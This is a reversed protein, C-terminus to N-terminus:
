ATMYLIYIQSNCLCIVANAEHQFKSHRVKYMHNCLRRKISKFM